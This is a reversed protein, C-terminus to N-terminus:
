QQIKPISDFTNGIRGKASAIEVAQKGATFPDHGQAIANLFVGNFVAGSLSLHTSALNSDPVTIEELHGDYGIMCGNEGNKVAVVNIGRDWLFGIVDVPREYGFLAKTEAPASPLMVDVFPLVSWLAEQSEELSQRNLRLNPDYAVMTDHIHGSYFAKFVSQKCTRSISQFESSSYIIKTSAILSDDIMGASFNELVSGPRNYLYERKDNSDEDLFYIGNYGGSSILYDTNINEQAMQDRLLRAFPDRGIASILGTKAGQRSASVATYIDSGGMNQDFSSSGPLDKSTSFEAFLEGLILLDFDRFFPNSMYGGAISTRHFLINM